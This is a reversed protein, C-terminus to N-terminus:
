YLYVAGAASASNDAQNGNIGTANGAECYAGVALTNGDASMAIASGYADTFGTNSAKVYAQQSWTSTSRTFFYVAGSDTLSNDAQNGNIGTANGDEGWAGVALRNGDASLALAYGFSEAGESNSAKVYAQQSWTSGSRTLVYIAGSNAASNDTQNGDIGTANSDENAAGVALTNGDASLALSSGFSDGAETNSAKVYAQQSWTTGSRTLVYVAGSNAASNDAQNGDIGTANSAEGIARVGLTNGDASLALFTGFFDSAGTNSAKVYAEQTWTAGSRIFVYVAGSNAASNDAQNGDIGTANSAEGYAGVALTNGDASLALATGFADMAETNSAKVYAQQLWTTGSRTYVYVAGSASASNDTQNGGIGTANSDEGYAGVALTNGDASLALAHGFCDSTATNSAKVYAQQSWVTGIRAFIYVAGSASASNDAQNGDIGTANSDEYHAGVALTNGDASLALIYGFNDNAETNSAKVYGIAPVLNAALSITGSDTCGSSNCAAIIYKANIRQVLAIDHNVSTSTVNTGVQTYSSVGDSNELLKYYTAGSVASWSFQLQKIGYGLTVVPAAPATVSPGGGGGGGCASLALLLSTVYISISGVKILSKIQLM